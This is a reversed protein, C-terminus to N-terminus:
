GTTKMGAAIGNVTSLALELLASRQGSETAPDRLARLLAVQIFNLPDVYPNRREISRQIVPSHDLLREQGIIRNVFQCAREHEATIASFVRARLAADTVLEAYREAIGMDAKALDLEVNDLLAAFFPWERYMEVLLALGGGEGACFTELAAGIGYWSPIIARSQMWSFVWPIARIAEFGGSPTRRVPRSAIPLHPLQEIPTAQRWYDLFGPTEYVLARYARRGEEALADMAAAWAPRVEVQAQGGTALLAAHLVQHLHRRAIAANSYRYAIVEGQETIKIPGRMAAPPQSLIARSTPGGGRGISGGRGHFLELLVGREQCLEALARQASYLQWNSAFYGGDKNSDSYGLMVQQRRGRGELYRAYAPNDFLAAMVEAAGRLDDITEFLPVLDVQGAVGVESAFLLMALGDSPVESRSAIVTDIAEPGYRRQAQAIMRWTAIVDNTEPSFAPEPPFLPRRSAIERTLLVQKEAEPLAEYDASIGYARFMEALAARHLRADQRVELPALGLGFLRVKEILRQLAGSAVHQGRNQRLSEQLLRLDDLLAASSPYGDATLRDHILTLKQRYLEGPYRRELADSVPISYRLFTSVPAEDTSQTLHDRLFTIEALYVSRAAERLAALTRLTVEPTVNPNGDRDGGIWSAYRLIPPLEDWAAGPYAAALAARLDAMVEVVVDMIVATLFYLGFDVEDMVTPSIARTLRTQWLEEIEEVLAAELTREERPLLRQRDRYAMLGAIQRLKLLVEKRKAESPHATLVFRVRLRGLLERVADADLGAGHLVSIAEEVSEHLSGAAERAQLVRIRQQDEAINILQFYHSFAKILIRLAEPSQTEITATLTRLADPDDARRAKAALRVQEVLTFAEEGHQERIVQGLLDGLLHIDASLPTQLSGPRTTAM